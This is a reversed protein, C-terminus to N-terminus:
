NVIENENEYNTFDQLEIEKLLTQKNFLWKNDFSNCVNQSFILKMKIFSILRDKLISMNLLNYETIQLISVLQREKNNLM